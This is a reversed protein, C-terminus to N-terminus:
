YYFTYNSSYGEPLCSIINQAMFDKINFPDQEFKLYKLTFFQDYKETLSSFEIKLFLFRIMM